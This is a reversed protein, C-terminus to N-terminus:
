GTGRAHLRDQPALKSSPDEGTGPLTVKVPKPTRQRPRWPRPAEVLEDGLDARQRQAIRAPRGADHQATDDAHRGHRVAVGQNVVRQGLAGLQQAAAGDVRQHGRGHQVM